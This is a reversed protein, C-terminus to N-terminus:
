SGKYWDTKPKFTTSLAQRARHRELALEILRDLLRPYPLGSAEWLKPYMSISTFGPITNIENFYIRNSGKKVLFDVRAMGACDVAKFARVALDMVKKTVSRPLKAPIVATSRGDVYKADYDYFENSSVIEGPISAEPEDNGLVSVEIERANEIGKEVLIKRDYRAALELAPGLESRKHVKSIGVSSGLNAPKVFLPYKIMREILSITKNPSAKFSESTFWVYPTVPIKVHECLQKTVVKDMGVSSGLVGAGVYPIGALEFLGQVTGDEGFTGHLVPFIVDIPLREREGASDGLAVLGGQAPDPLLIMQHQDNLRGGEKLLRVADPSSLWRGEASIGIPIVDYKSKDLANIVSAASVLSVEHEASRGGFIVGVRLKGTM